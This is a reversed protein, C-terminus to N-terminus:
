EEVEEVKLYLTIEMGMKVPLSTAEPAQKYVVANLSDEYTKVSKDYRISKVNLYLENLEKSADIRRMGRVDPIVTKDNGPNLGSVIDIASEAEVMAGPKIEHGNYRQKLVNNTAMDNVYIIKGLTLGRSNLEAIAQRTSYGVLNPMSVKQVGFANMTLLIRRGEKVMAGPAPNQERVLGRGKKSYVSDVIALRVGAKDAVDLAEKYPMGVFEPVELCEGHDTGIDLLKKAGWIMVLVLVLAIALNGVIWFWKWGTIKSYINSLSNNNTNKTM